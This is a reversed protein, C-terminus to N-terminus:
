VALRGPSKRLTESPLEDFCAKYAKSFEGFHWFGWNLAETTVTTASPAAMWLARRVRHLRIKTLYATPSLGMVARFAYELTRESVGAVRCLDTVYLREGTHSLAYKEATQVIQSKVQSLRESRAPAWKHSAKLANRLHDVLIEEVSQRHAQSLNFPTADQVAADVVMKGRAYFAEAAGPASQLFSAGLEEQGTAMVHELDQGIAHRLEPQILFSVSEYQPNAVLSTMAQHPAVLLMDSRIQFGNVLGTADPGFTVFSVQENMIRPRTRVRVNTSNYMLVSRGLRVVVRRAKLTQGQLQVLDQDLLEVCGNAAVPNVVDIVEVFSPLSTSTVTNMCVDKESVAGKGSICRTVANSYPKLHLMTVPTKGQSKERVRFEADAMCVGVWVM